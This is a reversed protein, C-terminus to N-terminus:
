NFIKILLLIIFIIFIVIVLPKFVHWFLTALLILGLILFFFGEMKLDSGINILFM